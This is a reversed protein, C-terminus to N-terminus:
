QGAVLPVVAAPRGSSVERDNTEAFASWVFARWDAESMVIEAYQEHQRDGSRLIVKVTGDALRTANIYPPYDGGVATFAHILQDSM